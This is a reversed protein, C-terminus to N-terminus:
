VIQEALIKVFRDVEESTMGLACAANLYRPHHPYNQHSGFNKLKSLFNPGFDTELDTKEFYRAGSINRLFLTSGIHGETEKIPITLSIQNKLNSSIEIRKLGLENKLYEFTKIRDSVLQKFKLKGTELLTILLDIIPSMSARGPYIKNVRDALPGFLVSGGVPVLFNKDTSQVVLDVRGVRLAESVLHCCKSSQLGYANNVLLPINLEKCTLSVSPIDDPSRPAFTSTTLVISHVTAAGLSEILSKIKKLDTCMVGDVIQQEVPHIMLRPDATMAKICSKQDIRSWIVNVRSNESHLQSIATMGLMISMGTAVPLVVLEAPVNPINFITKIADRVLFKTLSLLFSSGAAKPQEANVDGSRGIGHILKWHRRSVIRSLCRGEREGVGTQSPFNNSDWLSVERLFLEITEEPWGEDPIRRQAILNRILASVNKRSANAQHLYTSSVLDTCLELISPDM